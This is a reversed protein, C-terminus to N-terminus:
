KLVFEPHKKVLQNILIESFQMKDNTIFNEQSEMFKLSPERTLENIDIFKSYESRFKELANPVYDAFGLWSDIIYPKKDNVYVMYHDLNKGQCDLYVIKTNKIGNCAAIMRALFSSEGCNGAKESTILESYFNCKYFNSKECNYLTKLLNRVHKIKKKYKSFVKGFCKYYFYTKNSAYSDLSYMKTGSVRPYLKNVHRAINDAKKIVSNRAQFNINNDICFNM